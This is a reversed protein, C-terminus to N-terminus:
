AKRKGSEEGYRYYSYQYDYAQGAELARYKTLIVGVMHGGAGRIRRIANKSQNFGVRNAELVFVTGDVLRSLMPADALGMVPCSDFIILSYEERYKEIFKRLEASALLETPNPPAEGIPLIHLNKHVGKIVASKLDTHGLLVEVLGSEPKELNLLSAVSPRRLDADILLTKRGMGAFLEALIVATTSKGEGEDSSTLQIVNRDRPMSFDLASRISAYAEMLAGFRNTGEAELDRDEVFPTHGLLPLGLREEVQDLTRIKDDFTERLVALGGAFVAGIVLALAMNRFLSPEFPTTPVIAADLATIQGSQANAATSIENYRDLLLKLQYRLAEAERELVNYEVQRDQEALSASTLSALERELAREQRLAIQYDSRVTSKIDASTRDVQAQLTAIQGITNQIQPFDDTYRQRLDVLEAQKGAMDAILDQLVPSNQVEPLQSAPLNRISQWRQEAQIRAARAASVRTNIDVLSSNTLTVIGDDDEGSTQQVIIANNRAYTNAQQEAAALEGRIRVIQQQLYDQAYQNSAINTKTDSAVFAASYANAMEAALVPDDSQYGITIIWNMQPVETDLSGMLIGAAISQKEQAWQEDSFKPPRQEDIDKGLLDYREGLNNDAAVTEALSRSRIVEVQTALLDYVQNAHIGPGLDQGELFQTGYPQVRVTAQAEYMPTALLTIALGLVSALAMVGAIVWRQRFLIGRIAALDILQQRRQHPVLQTDPLYAELWNGSGRPDHPPPIIPRDNM